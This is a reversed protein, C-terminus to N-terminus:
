MLVYLSVLDSGCNHLHQLLMLLKSIEELPHLILRLKRKYEKEFMIRQRQMVEGWLSILQLYCLRMNFRSNEGWSTFLENMIVLGIHTISNM